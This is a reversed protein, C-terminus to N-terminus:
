GALPRTGTRTRSSTTTRFTPFSAPRAPRWREAWAQAIPIRSSTRCCAAPNVGYPLQTYKRARTELESRHQYGFGAYINVSGFTHGALVSMTYNDDSGRVGTYDGQVEIGNFKDRTIFNVVGAVADSGYTTAAGDKLVEVRELAFLPLLNTDVFGTGPTTITRRSNLLVLTRAAGLNRLNISGVGIYSQAAANFQNSDGLVTGSSPLQKILELPSNIGSRRLADSSIV